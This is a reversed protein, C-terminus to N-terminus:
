KDNRDGLVVLLQSNWFMKASYSMKCHTEEVQVHSVLSTNRPGNTTFDM